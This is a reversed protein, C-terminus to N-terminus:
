ITFSKRKKASFLEKKCISTSLFYTLKLNFLYMCKSCSATEPRPLLGKECQYQAGGIAFSDSKLTLGDIDFGGSYVEQQIVDAMKNLVEENAAFIEDNSKLADEQFPLVMEMIVVYVFEETASRKNIHIERRKRSTVSGCFVSVFRAHCDPVGVCEEHYASRNLAEVFNNQIQQLNEKSSNCADTYYYFESPLHM